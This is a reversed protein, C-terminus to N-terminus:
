AVISTGRCCAQPFPASSGPRSPVRDVLGYPVPDSNRWRASDRSYRPSPQLPSSLRATLSESARSFSPGAALARGVSRLLDATRHSCISGTDRIAWTSVNHGGLASDLWMEQKPGVRRLLNLRIM